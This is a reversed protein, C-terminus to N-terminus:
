FLEHLLEENKINEESLKFHEALELRLSDIEDKMAVFKPHSEIAKDVDMEEGDKDEKELQRLLFHGRGRTAIHLIVFLLLKSSIMDTDEFLQAVEPLMQVDWSQNASVEDRREQM